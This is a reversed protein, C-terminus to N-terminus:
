RSPLRGERGRGHSAALATLVRETEAVCLDLSFHSELRARAADGMRRRREPDELLAVVADALGRPDRPPVLLGTHGHDIMEPLGGIATCVSPIGATMSELIAFPFCEITYSSLVTVDVLRLMEDVDSRMGAFVVRDGLGLETALAELEPRLPGDGVVLLRARPHRAVVEAGARLFTAHDKETRLVALIGVVDDDDAIGLQRAVEGGRAARRGSPSYEAPDVGNRIVRIKHGPIGLDNVLYPVQGFAVGLVAHSLREIVPGLLRERRRRHVDGCNHKWVVTLPCRAIRSAVAGLIEANFGRTIVADPRFRRVERVLDRLALHLQRDSRELSHVGIGQRGVEDFFPGREKICVVRADFRAPDLRPLVRALHREAGGVSLSPVVFLLRMPERPHTTSVAPSM